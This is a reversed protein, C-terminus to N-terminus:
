RRAGQDIIVVSEVRQIDFATRNFKRFLFATFVCNIVQGILTSADIVIVGITPDVAHDFDMRIRAQGFLGEAASVAWLLADLPDGLDIHPRFKYRYAASDM